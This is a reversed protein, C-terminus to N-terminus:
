NDEGKKAIALKSWYDAKNEQRSRAIAMHEKPIDKNITSGAAIFAHDEVKVPSVLTVNSGIFSYDGVTSRYKNVGDYNAFIVGCSVNIEKGLDADGIYTLHGVKTNEGIVANKTEVYNGIHAGSKVTTRPRLHANPGIDVNNEVISSEIESSRVAVNNGIQSDRLISYSGIYSDEGIVTKGTLQVNPEITTDAGIQVDAEIYVSNPDVITVGNRMHKANNRRFYLQNAKALNVRDNVGLGEDLDDMQYAAIVEQQEKLIEVVDPLYYEGQANDNGVNNLAAFLAQNDFVYTGTNIEKVAQETESADKQEVIKTVFDNEGRIIRGYGNPDEAHATLITAKANETEHLDVLANITEATFLPTDGSIVLTTGEKDALLGQAQIVAHGTGLQEAQLAYQSRDGLTEKVLDAGHGVITVVEDFNAGEVATLVHDVMSKGAVPHLVKYLKSKMRTGKGAALIIAYRKKM